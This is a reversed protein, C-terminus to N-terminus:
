LQRLGNEVSHLVKLTAGFSDDMLHGYVETTVREESHGMVAMLLERRIGTGFLGLRLRTGLKICPGFAGHDNSSFNPKLFYRSRCLSM